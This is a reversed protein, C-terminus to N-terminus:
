GIAIVARAGQRRGIINLLNNLAAENGEAARAEGRFRVGSITWEGRGSLLLAGGLTSLDLTAADGRAADGRISVRYSGLPDIPAVRSSAGIFDITAAGTFRSRGQVWELTLGPSNLRLVGGPQLTNWPTGLGALWAAPWQGVTADARPPLTIAFRGLGPRLQLVVEDNLCCAQRARLEFGLGSPRLRWSLRGPLARADRSEEGATLVAVGSGSWVTGRTETLLLRGDTASALSRSLWAAPAFLVLGLLLGVVIGAVAWRGAAQRTRQWAIEALTSEAFGTRAFRPNARQGARKRPLWDGFRTPVRSM